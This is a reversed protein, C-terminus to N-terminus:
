EEGEEEIVEIGKSRIRNLLAQPYEGRGVILRELGLNGLTWPLKDQPELAVGVMRLERIDIKRLERALSLPTHSIDLAHLNLPALVNQRYILPITVLYASYPSHSLDLHWGEPRKTLKLEPINELSLENLWFLMVAVLKTHESPNIEPIRRTYHYYLFLCFDRNIAETHTMLEALDGDPLLDHDNTKFEAYQRCLELMAANRTDLKPAQELADRAANFQQLMFHMRAKELLIATRNAPDLNKNELLREAVPIMNRATVYSRVGQAHYSLTALEEGVKLSKEQEEKYLAFNQEGIEKEHRIVSLNIGMALAFVSLLAILWLSLEKHRQTLLMLRTHLGAREVRTPFGALFRNIDAQLEQVTAYRGAPETALAKTAVACLSRNPPRAPHRKAPPVIRGARTNELVENTHAGEVPLKHTLLTYLIAGLAYIDTQTTKEGGSVQEPAMFGPTGKMIGSLTMDNLIEGDLGNLEQPAATPPRDLGVHALGWDCLFVEGFQGVRINDPKIDLHLVNCSHAYAVADCVKNYIGLLTGLPYRKEYTKDGEALKDIIDKLSDGPVLEMTFFPTGAEDIGMNYIPVINPHTLNATLQAERLFQELDDPTETKIPHAMAVCRKLREDFTRVISKEGGSAIPDLKRYRADTSKLSHLIPTTWELEEASPKDPDAGYFQRLLKKRREPRKKGNDPSDKM